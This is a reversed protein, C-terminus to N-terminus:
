KTYAELLLYFFNLREKVEQYVLHFIIKFYFISNKFEKSLTILLHKEVTHGSINRM